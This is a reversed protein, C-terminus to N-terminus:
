NIGSAMCTLTRCSNCLRATIRMFQVERDLARTVVLRLDYSWDDRRVSELRFPLADDSPTVDDRSTMAADDMLQYGVVTYPEADVDYAEPLIYFTGPKIIVM